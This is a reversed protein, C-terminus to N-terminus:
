RPCSALNVQFLEKCVVCVTYCYGVITSTHQQSGYYSAAPPSSSKKEHHGGGSDVAPAPALQQADVVCHCLCFGVLMIFGSIMLVFVVDVLSSAM